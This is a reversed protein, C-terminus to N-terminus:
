RASLKASVRGDKEETSFRLKLAALNKMDPHDLIKGDVAALDNFTLSVPKTLTVQAKGKVSKIRGAGRAPADLLLSVVPGQKGGANKWTNGRVEGRLPEIQKLRRETSLVRGTDDEVASLEQLHILPPSRGNKAEWDASFWLGLQMNTLDAEKVADLAVRRVVHIEEIEVGNSAPAIRTKGQAQAARDALSPCLPLLGGFMLELFLSEHM